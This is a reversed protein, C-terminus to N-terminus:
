LQPQVTFLSTRIGGFWLVYRCEPLRISSEGFMYIGVLWGFAAIGRAIVVPAVPIFPVAVRWARQASAAV